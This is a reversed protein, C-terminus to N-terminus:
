LSKKWRKGHWEFGGIKLLTSRSLIGAVTWGLESNRSEQTKRGRGAGRLFAMHRKMGLFEEM